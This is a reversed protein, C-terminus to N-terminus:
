DRPKRSDTSELLKRVQLGNLILYPFYSLSTAIAAGTAGYRPILSFNLVINLTVSVLFNAARKAALGQYDLFANFYNSYSVTLLYPTLLQFIRAAAQYEWGLALPILTPASLFIILALIGYILTNIKLLRYFLRKLSNKNQRNMKAFIPMTGMAIALSIQTLKVMPQKAVAYLGVELDNKLFGIMLTDLETAVLYGLSIVFFPWSYKLIAKLYNKNLHPLHKYFNQYLLYAGVVATVALALNFSWVAAALNKYITLLLLVLVCKLGFEFTNLIFHYKLQHLGIFTAKFYEVLGSFFVFPAAAALLPTLEPKSIMRALPQHILLLAFTFVTSAALRLKLSSKLVPQLEGTGRHQAVFKNTARNIGFWSILTITNIISYLFSWRGFYKAGLFRALFINTIVFFILAVGKAAFSWFTERLLKNDTLNKIIPLKM